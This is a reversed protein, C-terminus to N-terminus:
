RASTTPSNTLRPPTAAAGDEFSFGLGSAVFVANAGCHIFDAVNSANVGGVPYLRADPFRQRTERVHTPGFRDRSPYLKVADAGAELAAEIEATSHAGCIVPVHHRRCLLIVEPRLAPTSIFRAGALIGRRATDTDIVTGLGLTLQPLDAAVAAIIDPVAPSTLPLELQPLGADLLTQGLERLQAASDARALAILRHSDLRQLVEKKLM